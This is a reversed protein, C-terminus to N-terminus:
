KNNVWILYNNLSVSEIAIPMSSHYAGCLESCQGYFLGIRNIILSLSNLRGPICDAKIGLSPITFSHLVDNATLLIRINTNVPMVLNNDVTLQRLEGISLEDESILFSDYEINKDYDTYEYSWYWQNGIAKVTLECDIIEDLIYLLKLSPIGIFFLIISPFITWILELQNNHHINIFPLKLQKLSQIFLYFVIIGLLILYYILTSHLDIISILQLSGNDQFTTSFYNPYDSYLLM